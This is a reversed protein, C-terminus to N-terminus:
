NLNDVLLSYASAPINTVNVDDPVPLACVRSIDL